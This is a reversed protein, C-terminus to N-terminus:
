DIGFQEALDEVIVFSIMEDTVKENGFKEIAELYLEQANEAYAPIAIFFLESPKLLFGGSEELSETAKQSGYILRTYDQSVHNYLHHFIEHNPSDKELFETGSMFTNLLCSVFQKTSSNHNSIFDFIVDHLEEKTMEYSEFEKKGSSKTKIFLNETDEDLTIYKHKDEEKLMTQKLLNEFNPKM